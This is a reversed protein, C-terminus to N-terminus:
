LPSILCYQDTLMSHMCTGITYLTISAQLNYYVAAVGIPCCCFIAVFLSFLLRYQQKRLTSEDVNSPQAMGHQPKEEFYPPFMMDETYPYGQAVNCYAGEETGQRHYEMTPPLIASVPPATAIPYSMDSFDQQPPPNSPADFATPISGVTGPPLVQPPPDVTLISCLTTYHLTAYRLTTYHLTTYQLTTYHLTTYQLTTYHLATYHLTTYQLTTYHLTTYHITTYHLTTYQLTTYHLTTYHLTNYHLTTYHLTTYHLTTYHLTTYHLTTYHLTTYHLTTYHLTTYHLTTYHLTTYHLTTYHLTTYHLTTYHLTTYHLTTYVNSQEINIGIM